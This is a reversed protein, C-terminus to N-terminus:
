DRYSAKRRAERKEFEAMEAATIVGDGDL